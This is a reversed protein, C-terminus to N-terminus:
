FVGQNLKNAVTYYHRAGPAQKPWWRHLSHIAPQAYTNVVSSLLLAAFFLHKTM